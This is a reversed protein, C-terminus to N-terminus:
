IVDLLCPACEAVRSRTALALVICGHSATQNAFANDGHIFFGSRGFMETEKLPELFMVMRGLRSHDFPRHVRFSGRPIPGRQKLTQASPDNTFPPFGSYGKGLLVRKEPTEQFVRGTAQEYILKKM